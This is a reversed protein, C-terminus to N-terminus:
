SQVLDSSWTSSWMMRAPSFNKQNLSSPQHRLPALPRPGVSHAAARFPRTSGRRMEYLEYSQSEGLSAVEPFLDPPIGQEGLIEPLSAGPEKPVFAFLRRANEWDRGLLGRPLGERAAYYEVYADLPFPAVFRDDATVRAALSAVAEGAEPFHSHAPFGSAAGHAVGGALVAAALWEAGGARGRPFFRGYGAVSALAVWPLLITLVRDPPLLRRALLALVAGLLLVAVSGVNRDWRRLFGLALGAGAIAAGAASHMGFAKMTELVHSPLSRAFAAFSLPQVFRNALLPTPGMSVLIPLYFLCALALIGLSRRATAGLSRITGGTRGDLFLWLFVGALPIGMAPVTFLGLASLLVFLLGAARNPSRSIHRALGYVWLSLLLALSYGRANTAQGILDPHVALLATAVLAISRGCLRAALVLFTPLVLCAGLFSTLRLAYPSGGLLSTAVKALVSHFVHNNPFSYDSLVIYWPRSVFRNATFCEDYGMPPNELLSWARLAVGIGLVLVPAAWAAVGARGLLTAPLTGAQAALRAADAALIELHRALLGVARRLLVLFLLTAAASLVSLLLLKRRISELVEPTLHEARGDAAFRDALSRLSPGDLTAFRLSVLTAALLGLALGAVVIAAARRGTRSRGAATCGTM